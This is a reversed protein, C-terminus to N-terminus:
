RVMGIRRCILTRFAWKVAIPERPRPSLTGVGVGRRLHRVQELSLLPSTGTTLQVEGISVPQLYVM